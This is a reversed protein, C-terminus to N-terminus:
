SVSEVHRMRGNVATRFAGPAFPSASPRLSRRHVAPGAPAACSRLTTNGHLVQQLFAHVTAVPGLLRERWTYDLERCLREITAAQLYAAVDSKIQGVVRLISNVM